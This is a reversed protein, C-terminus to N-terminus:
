KWSYNPKNGMEFVLQHGNLIQQHTIFPTALPKGDLTVSQVYKNTDSINKAEIAFTHQEGDASRFHM